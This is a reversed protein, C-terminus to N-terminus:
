ASLVADVFRQLKADAIAAINIRGDPTLHIDHLNRLSAVEETGLPLQAFMGEGALASAYKTGARERLFARKYALSDRVTSLERLWEEKLETQVIAAIIQGPTPPMSYIRRGIMACHSAIRNKAEDSKAPILVAGTRLGYLCHNKSLSLTVALSVSKEQLIRIPRVDDEVSQGLGQYATDFIVCHGTDTLVDALARWEEESVRLGTPNHCSTQLLIGTPERAKRVEELLPQLSAKADAIYPVEETELGAEGILPGHNAWTPVPLLVRRIGVDRVARLAIGLAGTGGVAATAAIHQAVDGFVLKTVCDLFEATGGLPSYPIGGSRAANVWREMAAGVSKFTILSGAEDVMVGITANIGDPGTNKALKASEFIPDPKPSALKEFAPSPPTNVAAHYM